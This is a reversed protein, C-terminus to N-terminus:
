SSSCCEAAMLTQGGRRGGGRGAEATEPRGQRPAQRAAGASGTATQPRLTPALVFSLAMARFIPCHRETFSFSQRPLRFSSIQGLSEPFFSLLKEIQQNPKARTGLLKAFVQGHPQMITKFINARNCSYLRVYPSAPRRVAEDVNYGPATQREVRGPGYSSFHSRSCTPYGKSWCFTDSHHM